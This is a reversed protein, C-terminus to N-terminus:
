GGVKSLGLAILFGAVTIFGASNWAEDFAEPIITKYREPGAICYGELQVCDLISQLLYRFHRWGGSMVVM